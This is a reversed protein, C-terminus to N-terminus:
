QRGLETAHVWLEVPRMTYKDPGPLDIVGPFRAYCLRKEDPSEPTVGYYGWLTTADGLSIKQERTEQQLAITTTNATTEEAMFIYLILGGIVALVIGILVSNKKM